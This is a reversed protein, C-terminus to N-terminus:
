GLVEGLIKHSKIEGINLHHIKYYVILHELLQNRQLGISSIQTYTDIDAEKVRHLLQSLPFPIVHRFNDSAPTFEGEEMDFVEESIVEGRPEFGLYRSLQVMFWCPFLSINQETKDLYNISSFLFDFLTKNPEEEVICKHLLEAMFLGVSTKVLNNHLSILTPQCRIEKILQIDTNQKHYAVIELLNLTLLQAPSFSSSKNNRVGKVMYSQIGFQETYLKAIISTESYKVTKLVIARSSFLM